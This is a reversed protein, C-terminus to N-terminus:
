SGSIGGLASAVFNLFSVINGGLLTLGGVCLLAIMTLILAYEVLAQGDEGEVRKTMKRVLGTPENM